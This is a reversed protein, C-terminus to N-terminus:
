LAHLPTHCWTILRSRCDQTVAEVSMVYEVHVLPNGCQESSSFWVLYTCFPNLDRLTLDVQKLDLETNRRSVEGGIRKERRQILM